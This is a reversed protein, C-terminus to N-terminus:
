CQITIPRGAPDYATCYRPGPPVPYYAPPPPASSAAAAAAMGGLIGLGIAAGVAAGPPGAHWCRGWRDCVLRVQEVPAKTIAPRSMPAFPAAFGTTPGLLTAAVLLGALNRNRLPMQEEGMRRVPMLAPCAEASTHHWKCEM